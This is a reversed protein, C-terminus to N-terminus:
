ILLWLSFFEFLTLSLSLFFRTLTILLVMYWPLVRLWTLPKTDNYLTMQTTSSPIYGDTYYLNSVLLLSSLRDLKELNYRRWKKMWPVKESWFLLQRQSIDLYQPLYFLLLLFLILNLCVHRPFM